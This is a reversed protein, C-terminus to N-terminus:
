FGEAGGGGLLAEIVEDINAANELIEDRLKIRIETSLITPIYSIAIQRFFDSNLATDPYLKEDLQREEYRLFAAKAFLILSLILLNQGVEIISDVDPINEVNINNLQDVIISRGIINANFFYLGSTISILTAVIEIDLIHLDTELFFPDNQSTAPSTNSSQNTSNNNQNLGNTTSNTTKSSTKKSFKKSFKKKSM